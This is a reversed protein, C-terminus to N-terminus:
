GEIVVKVVPVGNEDVGKGALAFARDGQGEEALKVRHTVVKEEVRKFVDTELVKIATPYAHRDYRFVGILDVERLAAAGVPLTQVPSGMGIQVVVGGPASAYIGAQVCAPVGTCDYVRAFGSSVAHAEQLKKATEQATALAYATQEAQPADKPPPPTASREILTTRLGLGLSEAVKLRAADIDAVVISSFHQSTALAAALLLGIAGAGFILAASEEGLSKAIAAEDSTPPHSRRIAHLCVALPEALAGGTFSVSDPLAHCMDEPHNTYEMLTGDLHPFVKASSRFRMNSCLNYRDSACFLCTRCPLGVELAIRDGTKLNKV